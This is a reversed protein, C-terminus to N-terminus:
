IKSLVGNLRTVLDEPTLANPWAAIPRLCCYREMTTGKPHLFINGLWLQDAEHQLEQARQSVCLTADHFTATTKIDSSGYGPLQVYILLFPTKNEQKAHKSKETVHDEFTESLISALTDSKQIGGCQHGTSEAPVIRVSLLTGEVTLRYVDQPIAQFTALWESFQELTGNKWINEGISSQSMVGLYRLAIRYLPVGNTEAWPGIIEELKKQALSVGSGNADKVDVPIVTNAARIQLDFPANDGFNTPWGLGELVGLREFEALAYLETSAKRFANGRQNKGKPCFLADLPDKLAEVKFRPLLRELSQDVQELEFEVGDQLFAM